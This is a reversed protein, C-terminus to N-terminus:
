RQERVMLIWIAIAAVLAGGSLFSAAWFGYQTYLAPAAFSGVARGLSFSAVELSLVLGRAHPFIESYLPLGSVVALEFMFYVLVLGLTGLWANVGLVPLVFYGACGILLSGLVTRWKGLRDVFGAAFLEAGLEAGGIASAVFGLGVANVGFSQNMWAGFVVNINENGLAMLFTVSVVAWAMPMRALVRLGGGNELAHRTHHEVRPLGMWILVFAAAGLVGLVGFAARWGAWTLIIGVFPLGFLAAASWALEGFAMARGRQAYPVKDGLYAQQAPVFLIVGFSIMIMAGIVFWFPAVPLLMLCALAIVAIGALMVVRRGFRDSLPGLVPAFVGILNRAQIIEAAAQLPVGLDAAIFPLFPYVARYATDLVTRSFLIVTLLRWLSVRPAATAPVASSMPRVLTAYLPVFYFECAYRKRIKHLFIEAVLEALLVQVEL